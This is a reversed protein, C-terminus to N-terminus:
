DHLRVPSGPPREGGHHIRGRVPPVKVQPSKTGHLAEEYIGGCHSVRMVGDGAGEGPEEFRAVAEVQEGGDGTAEVVGDGGELRVHGGCREEGDYVVAEVGVVHVAVVVGGPEYALLLAREVLFGLGHQGR